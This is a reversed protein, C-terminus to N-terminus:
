TRRKRKRRRKRKQKEEPPPPTEQNMTDLFAQHYDPKPTQREHLLGLEIRIDEWDGRVSIDVRNSTFAKEIVSATEVAQLDVLASIIFANLSPDMKAYHELQGALIAMCKTREDPYRKCIESLSASAAIRAWLGHSPDALYDRLGPIAAPGLVGFAGTLDENVWDDGFEDIRAFLQTLPEVAAEAHLQALTRWAHVPAWVELSDSDARHLDEDLAMRILDPIHEPGLGLALYDPWQRKGLCDGQTLLKSVPDPYAESM